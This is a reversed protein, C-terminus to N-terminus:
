RRSEPHRCNTLFVELHLETPIRGEGKVLLFCCSDLFILYKLVVSSFSYNYRQPYIRSCSRTVHTLLEERISLFDYM